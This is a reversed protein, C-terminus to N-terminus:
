GRGPVPQDIAQCYTAADARPRSRRPAGSWTDIVGEWDTGGSENSESLLLFRLAGVRAGRM